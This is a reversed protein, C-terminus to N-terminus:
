PTKAAEKSEPSIVEATEPNIGRWAIQYRLIRLVNSADEVGESNIIKVAQSLPLRGIRNIQEKIIKRIQRLKSKRVLSNPLIAYGEPTRETLAIRVSETAVGIRAAFEEFNVVPELFRVSLNKVFSTQKDKVHQFAEELYRLIPSLPVRNRYYIVNLKADKELKALRECALTKDVAILMNVDIKKLKEIKRKLYEATWFGVVEMYMKVGEREFSFDPIIVQRGAPVPEPERRLHWSSKLAHFRTAFEEEVTSDYSVTSPQPIKLVANHKRSEVRFDCIENTYKWLIKAEVTWESGAIIAPVLKALATGYRRTLKFLSAPGDIKVWFGRSRYAEYILGLRKVTYLIRQWNGSATFDLETSNFLLTQTLSLNYSKLLQQPPLPNFEALVLEGDLDAYFSDEVTKVPFELESAVSEVIRKRQEPTTPLGLEGTTQYLKRRLDVPDAKTNCRFISRRDLLVSLGRVFRYDHGMGELESVFGKLVKKKESVHRSYSQILLEAVELNDDSLRAYRPWIRGKRRRVLLLESPLV